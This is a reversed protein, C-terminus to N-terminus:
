FFDKNPHLLLTISGHLQWPLSIILPQQIMVTAKAPIVLQAHVSVEFWWKDSWKCEFGDHGFSFFIILNDSMLIRILLLSALVYKWLIDSMCVCVCVCVCVSVFQSSFWIHEWWKHSWSTLKLTIILAYFNYLNKTTNLDHCCLLRWRYSPFEVLVLWAIFDWSCLSIGM